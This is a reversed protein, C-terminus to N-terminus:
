NNGLVIDRPVVRFNCGKVGLKSLCPRQRVEFYDERLLINLMQFTPSTEGAM